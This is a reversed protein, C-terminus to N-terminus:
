NLFQKDITEGLLNKLYKVSFDEYSEKLGHKSALEDTYDDLMYLRIKSMNQGYHTVIGKISVNEITVSYQETNKVIDFTLAAGLMYEPKAQASLFNGLSYAVLTKTGNSNEIYEVPQLVHPHTGIVVTAGWEGLKAALDKQAQTVENEYENGWHAIVIVADAKQNAYSILSSLWTEYEALSLEAESDEPLSNGNAADTFAVYAIKVGNCKQMTIWQDQTKDKYAGITIINKSEWYDLTNILGEEGYDLAHNTAVNVVDFGIDALEDGLEIPSNMLISGSVSHTSSIVSEQTIVASDANSIFDEVKEYVYSFDYGGTSSRAKAQTLIDDQVMNNGVAVVSARTFIDENEDTESLNQESITEADTFLIVGISVVDLCLIAALLIAMFRKM